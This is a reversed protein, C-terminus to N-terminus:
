SNVGVVKNVLQHFYEDSCIELGDVNSLFPKLDAKAQEFDVKDVRKHLAQRLMEITLKEVDEFAGTQQARALHNSFYYSRRISIVPLCPTL